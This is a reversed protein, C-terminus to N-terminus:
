HQHGAAYYPNRGAAHDTTDLIAGVAPVARRIATEVGQRLTVTAMGCGQCGGGMRIFVDNNRVDILEVFGGHSAVSPNVDTDIVDQVLERIAEPSPLTQLLVDPVTPEKSVLHERIAAGVGKGISPWEDAVGKNVVVQDHSVLVSTVGTIDFLRRALSSSQAVQKNPFFFSAGDYVPRDVTFKCMNNTIPQATIRIDAPNM